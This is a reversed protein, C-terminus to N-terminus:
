LLRAALAEELRCEGGEESINKLDYESPSVVVHTAEEKTWRLGAGYFIESAERM